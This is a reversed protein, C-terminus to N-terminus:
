DFVLVDDIWERHDHANDPTVCPGHSAERWKVRSDRLAQAATKGNEIGRLVDDLFAAADTDGIESPSAVVARAGADLLACPLSWAEHLYPATHAADCAGLIVVPSGTFREAAIRSATLAWTGDADPSLAILSADSIGLDVLGHAHILVESAARM